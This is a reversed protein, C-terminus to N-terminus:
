PQCIITGGSWGQIGKGVPCTGVTGLIPASTGITTVNDCNKEIYQQTETLRSHPAAGYNAANPETKKNLGVLGTENECKISTDVGPDASPNPEPATLNKMRFCKVTGSADTTQDCITQTMTKGVQVAGSVDLTAKPKEDVTYSAKPSLIATWVPASSFAGEETAPNSNDRLGAWFEDNATTRFAISDDFYNAGTGLAFGKSLENILVTSDNTDTKQRGRFQGTMTTRNCNDQDQGAINCSSLAGNKDYAGKRDAGHSIVVFLVRNSGSADRSNFDGGGNLPQGNQNRLGIAGHTNNFTSSNTLERTVAYTIKSGYMDYSEEEKLGLAQFPVSGVLVESSTATNPIAGAVCRIGNSLVGSCSSSNAAAPQGYNATGSALTPVAPLPYSKNQQAFKNLAIAIDDLKKNNERFQREIKNINYMQIMPVMLIGVVILAIAVQVLTLGSESSGSDIKETCVTEFGM